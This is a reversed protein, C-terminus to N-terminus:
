EGTKRLITDYIEMTKEAMTRASFKEFVTARAAQGLSFAAQKSSLINIIAEALFKEDKPPVLLGNVGNKVVEPIGGAETAVVPKGLAMAELLALGMGESVSPLVFVDFDAVLSEVNEHYGLFDVNSMIGMEDALNKLKDRLPGDGVIVMRAKPFSKLVRMMAKIAYEYGKEPVLRAVTGIIPGDAIGFEKKLRPEVGGFKEVDIGNYVIKIMDAPVGNEILSIKVARSIAIICDTFVISVIKAAMRHFFDKKGAGLGHRTLVVRRGSLRGAIRGAFSAHTHVVDIKESLIIDRIQKIHQLKMSKEGGSITFVKIGMNRLLRELEGGSPCAALLEYRGFNWASVLNIFYRGAGGINTDTLVHLVRKM